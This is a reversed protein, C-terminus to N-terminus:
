RQGVKTAPNGKFISGENVIGIVVSGIAIVASHGIISGPALVCKAGIWADSNIIIPGIKLDFTLSRFDHNGTCLYTGQSICVRDGIRVEALNDIWLNEGLWCHDGVSLKWPLTINLRPKIRGGIGINAGFICLIFKRWTTGPIWSAVIPQFLCVWVCRQFFSAGSDWDIPKKYLDLRQIKM